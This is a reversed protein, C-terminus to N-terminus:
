IENAEYEYILQKVFVIKLRWTVGGRSPNSSAKDSWGM